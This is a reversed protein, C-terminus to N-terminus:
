EGPFRKPYREKYPEGLDPWWQKPIPVKSFKLGDENEEL